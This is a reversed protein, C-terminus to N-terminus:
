VAARGLAGADSSRRHLAEASLELGNPWALAGAQIYASDFFATNALPLTLVTNRAILEAASWRATAGDSFCLLLETPGVPELRVLKIM